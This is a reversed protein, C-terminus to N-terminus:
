GGGGGVLGVNKGGYDMRGDRKREIVLAVM